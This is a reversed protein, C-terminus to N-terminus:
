EALLKADEPTAIPLTVCFEAGGEARNRAQLTGGHEKVIRASTLLGFGHGSPKSSVREKLLKSALEDAIGPGDDAVTLLVIGREPCYTTKVQVTSHQGGTEGLADAANLILNYFVQQIGSPDCTVIPLDRDWESEITVKKVRKQPRLFAIQNELFANLDLPTREGPLKRTSLLNDTFVKIRDITASINQLRKLTRESGSEQMTMSLLEANGSLVALYNNLEHAIEAAMEGKMALQERQLALRELERMETLDEFIWLRAANGNGNAATAVAIVKCILIRRDPGIIEIEGKWPTQRKLADTIPEICSPDVPRAWEWLQSTTNQGFLRLAAPNILQVRDGTDTVVVPYPSVALVRDRESLAGELQKNAKEIRRLLQELQDHATKLDRNKTELEEVHADDIARVQAALVRLFRAAIEPHTELVELFRARPLVFLKTETECVASVRRRSSDILAMEGVVEGQERRGLVTEEGHRAQTLRVAGQRIVYLCDGPEGARFLITGAPSTRTDLYDHITELDQSPLSAFLDTHQLVMRGTSTLEMSM